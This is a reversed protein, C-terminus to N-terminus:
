PRTHRGKQLRASSLERNWGEKKARKQFATRRCGRRRSLEADSYIATRYTTIMM